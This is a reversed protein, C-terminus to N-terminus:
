KKKKKKKLTPPHVTVNAKEATYKISISQTLGGSSRPPQAVVPTPLPIQRNLIEASKAAKNQQETIANSVKAQIAAQTQLEKHILKRAEQADSTLQSEEVLMETGERTRVKVKGGVTGIRTVETGAVFGTIGTETAQSVSTKLFASNERDDGPTQAFVCCGFILFLASLFHFKM